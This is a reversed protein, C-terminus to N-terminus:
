TVSINTSNMITLVGNAGYALIVADGVKGGMTILNSLTGNNNFGPTYGITHQFASQSVFTYLTGVLAPSVVPNITIAAAAAKVIEYTIDQQPLTITQDQGLSAVVLINPPEMVTTAGVSVAPFDSALASTLCAALIDHPGAATGEAGRRSVQVSGPTASVLTQKLFMFEGDILMPWNVLQGVPPFGNATSTIPLILQSSTIAASLSSVTLAM